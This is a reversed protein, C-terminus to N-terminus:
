AAYFMKMWSAYNMPYTHVNSQSVTLTTHSHMKGDNVDNRDVTLGVCVVRSYITERQLGHRNKEIRKM